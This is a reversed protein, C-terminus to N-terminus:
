FVKHLVVSKGADEVVSTITTATDTSLFTASDQECLYTRPLGTAVADGRAMVTCVDNTASSDRAVDFLGAQALIQVTGSNAAFVADLLVVTGGGNVFPGLTDGWTQALLGLTADDAQEQAYVLFVDTTALLGPVEAAGAVTRSAQRGTASAVQAIAADAGAIAVPNAAGEYVLLRVPNVPWLFVANGLIRNMAPRNRLYDHGIVITRGTGAAQCLGNSCLGSMCPNACGGCNDPDTATNVCQRGCVTEDAACVLCSGDNCVGSACLTNCGGCNEPDLSTDVCQDNCAVLPDPCVLPGDDPGDVPQEADLTLTGNDADVCGSCDAGDVPATEDSAADAGIGEGADIADIAVIPAGRGDELITTPGDSLGLADESLPVDSTEEGTAAADVSVAGDWAENVGVENVGAEGAGADIAGDLMARGDVGESDVPEGGDPQPPLAADVAACTGSPVCRGHCPSYGTACKTGVIPDLCAPLALAVVLVSWRWGTM